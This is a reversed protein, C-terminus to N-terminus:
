AKKLKIKQTDIMIQLSKLHAEMSGLAVLSQSEQIQKSWSMYLLLARNSM